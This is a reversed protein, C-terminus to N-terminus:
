APGPLGSITMALKPVAYGRSRQWNSRWSSISRVIAPKCTARASPRVPPRRARHRRRVDDGIEACAAKDGDRLDLTANAGGAALEHQRAVHTKGCSLRRNKALWLCRRGHRWARAADLM